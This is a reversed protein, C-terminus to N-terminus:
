FNGMGLKYNLIKLIEKTMEMHLKNNGEQEGNQTPMFIKNCSDMISIFSILDSLQKYLENNLAYRLTKYDSLISYEPFFDEYSINYISKEIYELIKSKLLEYQETTMKSKNDEITKLIEENKKSKDINKSKNKLNNKILIKFYLEYTSLSEFDSINKLGKFNLGESEILKFLSKINYIIDLKKDKYFFHTWTGDSHGYFEPYSPHYTYFSYRQDGTKKNNDFIFGLHKLNNVSIDSNKALNLQNHKNVINKYFVANEWMGSLSKLIELKHPDKHSFDREQISQIFNKIPMDFFKELYTTNENEIINEIRGYDDYKGRIPLCFPKYFICSAENSILFSTHPLVVGTNLNKYNSTKILPFFLVDEGSGLSLSSCTAAVNFSGM